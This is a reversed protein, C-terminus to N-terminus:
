KKQLALSLVHDLFEGYSVGIADLSKPLLSETTLGPLTNIELAYIKHNKGNRDPRVIFDTRSYHRCGLSNHARVAIEEMRKKLKPDFSCPCMEQSEGSYKAEYDFFNHKDPAIIEVVPLAYYKQNRLGDVVGCTAERGKIYEEVVVSVDFNFAYGISDILEPISYAISVGRSSGASAPKVVWPPNIKRFVENAVETVDESVYVSVANPMFIGEQLFAKRMLVKNMGVASPFVNSGTYPIVIDDLIKQVKGDEGFRGHLANFVVDVFRPLKEPETRKGEIYWDDNKGILIDVGLYGEPLNKLVSEGTKLSVEAENSPGGRLVGVKISPM